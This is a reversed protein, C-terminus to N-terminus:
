IIALLMLLLGCITIRLASITRDSPPLVRSLALILVAVIAGCGLDDIWGEGMLAVALGGVTLSACILPWAVIRGASM